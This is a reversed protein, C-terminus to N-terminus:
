NKHYISNWGIKRKKLAGGSSSCINESSKVIYSNYNTWVKHMLVQVNYGSFKVWTPLKKESPNWYKM